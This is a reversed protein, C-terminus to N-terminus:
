TRFGGQPLMDQNPLAITPVWGLTPAARGEMADTLLHSGLRQVLAAPLSEDLVVVSDM